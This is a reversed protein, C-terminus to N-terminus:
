QCIKGLPVQYINRANKNIYAQEALSDDGPMQFASPDYYLNLEETEHNVDNQFYFLSYLSNTWKEYSDLDVIEDFHDSLVINYYDYAHAAVRPENYSATSAFISFM